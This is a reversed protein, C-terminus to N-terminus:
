CLGALVFALDLDAALMDGLFQAHMSGPCHEWLADKEPFARFHLHEADWFGTVPQLFSGLGGPM